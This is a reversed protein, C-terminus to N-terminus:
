AIMRIRNYVRELYANVNPENEYILSALRALPEEIEM